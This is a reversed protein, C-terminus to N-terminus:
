EGFKYGFKEIDSAYIEAVIQKTEEDYYETYHKHNTANKHPLQKQPIGIRDCVTNFDHQLNEVKGILNVNNFDVLKTQPLIHSDNMKENFIQKCFESFTSDKYKSYKDLEWKTGIVQKTKDFFTSVFRCWPNRVFAFKFYSDWEVMYEISYEYIDIKTHTDLYNFITTSGCKAIRYWVYKRESSVTINYLDM